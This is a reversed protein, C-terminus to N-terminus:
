RTDETGEAAVVDSVEPRLSPRKREAGTAVPQILSAHGSVGHDRTQGGARCYWNEHLLAAHAHGPPRGDQGVDGARAVAPHHSAGLIVWSAVVLADRGQMGREGSGPLSEGNRKFCVIQAVRRACVVAM